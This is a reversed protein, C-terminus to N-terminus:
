TKIAVEVGILFSLWIENCTQPKTFTKPTLRLESTAARIDMMDIHGHLHHQLSLTRTSIKKQKMRSIIKEEIIKHM